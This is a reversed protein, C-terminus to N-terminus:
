RDPRSAHLVRGELVADRVFRRTERLRDFEEPTYVLLDVATRPALREAVRALRGPFSEEGPCPMVVLLDVDSGRVATGRARSGFLIVREAGLEVLERTLREIECEISAREEESEAMPTAIARPGTSEM